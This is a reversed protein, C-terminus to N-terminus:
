ATPTPPSVGLWGPERRRAQRLHWLFIPAGVLTAVLGRLANFFGAARANDIAEARIEAKEAESLDRQQGGEPAPARESVAFRVEPALQPLAAQVLGNLGGIVGFLLVVLGVLTALYYYVLPLWRRRPESM